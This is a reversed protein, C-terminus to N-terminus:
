FCELGTGSYGTSPARFIKRAIIDSYLTACWWGEMIVDDRGVCGINVNRLSPFCVNKFPRIFDSLNCPFGVIFEGKVGFLSCLFALGDFAFIKDTM